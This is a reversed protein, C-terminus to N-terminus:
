VNPSVAQIAGPTKMKWASLIEELKEKRAYDYAKQYLKTANNHMNDQIKYIRGFKEAGWRIIIGNIDTSPMNSLFYKMQTYADNMGQQDKNEFADVYQKINNYLDYENQFYNLIEQNFIDTTDAIGQINGYSAQFLGSMYNTKDVQPQSYKDVSLDGVDNVFDHFKEDYNMMADDATFFDEMGKRYVKFAEYDAKDAALREKYFQKFNDPLNLMLSQNDISIMVNFFSDRNNFCVLVQQEGNYFTEKGSQMDDIEKNSKNLTDDASNFNNIYEKEFIAAQARPNMNFYYFHKLNDTTSQIVPRLLYIAVIGILIIFVFALYRRNKKIADRPIAPLKIRLLDLVIKLIVFDIVLNTVFSTFINNLIPSILILIILAIISKKAPAIMAIIQQYITQKKKAM